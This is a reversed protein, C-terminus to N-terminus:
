RDAQILTIFEVPSYVPLPSNEFDKKNRTVIADLGEAVASACQVADEFDGFGLSISNEIVSQGTDSVGVLMLMEAIASEAREKGSEKRTTYYTNVFTVSTVYAEFELNQLRTFIEDIEGLFGPRRLIFDLVVNTDLLVKM